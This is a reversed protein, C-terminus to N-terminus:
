ERIKETLLSVFNTYNTKQDHLYSLWSTCEEEDYGSEILFRVNEEVARLSLTRFYESFTEFRVKGARKEEESRLRNFFLHNRYHHPLEGRTFNEATVELGEFAKEHDILLYRDASRLMNPKLERRDDNSILMDFAFVSEFEELDLNKDDRTPSYLPCGEHYRCAFQPGRTEKQELLAYLEPQTEAVFELLEPLVLMYVADPILLDFEKALVNAMVEAVTYSRQAADTKSFLKLVYTNGDDGLVLLPRTTGGVLSHDVFEVIQITPLLSM